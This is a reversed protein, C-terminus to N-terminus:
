AVAAEAEAAIAEKRHAAFDDIRGKWACICVIYDKSFSIDDITHPKV